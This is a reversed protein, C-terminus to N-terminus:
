TAWFMQPNQNNENEEGQNGSQSLFDFHSDLVRAEGVFCRRSIRTAATLAVTGFPAVTAARAASM